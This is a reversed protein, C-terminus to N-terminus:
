RMAPLRGLSVNLSSSVRRVFTTPETTRRSLQIPVPTGPLSAQNQAVLSASASQM